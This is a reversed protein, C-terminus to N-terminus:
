MGLWLDITLTVNTNASLTCRVFRWPYGSLLYKFSTVATTITLNTVATTTPSASDAYPINFWNVADPSGEIALTVTPTAGVTSTIKLLAPGTFFTTDAINTTVGNGTQATCLNVGTGGTRQPSADLTAM